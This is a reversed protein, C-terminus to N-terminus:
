VKDYVKGIRSLAIAEVEVETMERTRLVAQKYWDIIEYIM